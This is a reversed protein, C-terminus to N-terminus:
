VTKPKKSSDDDDPVPVVTRVVSHQLHKTEKERVRREIIYTSRYVHNQYFSHKTGPSETCSMRKMVETVRTRPQVGIKTISLTSLYRM